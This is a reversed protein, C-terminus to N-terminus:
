ARHLLSHQHDVVIRHEAAQNGATTRIESEVRVRRRTPRLRSGQELPDFGVEHYEVVLQGIGLAALHQGLQRALVRDDHQGAESRDAVRNRHNAAAGGVIQGLRDVEVFEFERNAAGEVIGRQCVGAIEVPALQMRQTGTRQDAVARRHELQTFHDVHHRRGIRRHQDLALAAGALFHDGARDVLAAPAGLAFQHGDIAAAQLFAQELGLQEAM